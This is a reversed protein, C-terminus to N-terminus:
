ASASRKRRSGFLYRPVEECYSEYDAGFIMTLHEEETIVMWHAIIGYLLIWGIAYISPWQVSTGAILLYGGLIQPNTSVSYPGDRILGAVKIGFAKGMGFWAMTGFAVLFGICILVLGAVQRVPSSPSNLLWFWPWDPPNYLYPFSFLGVFVVLQLSSAFTSLRGRLLYDRRVIRRFVVFAFVLLALALILIIIAKL